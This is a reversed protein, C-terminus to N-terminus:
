VNSRVVFAIEHLAPDGTTSDCGASYMVKTTNGDWESLNTVDVIDIAAYPRGPGDSIPRFGSCKATAAALSSTATVLAIFVSVFM